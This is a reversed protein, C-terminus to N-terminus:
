QVYGHDNFHTDRWSGTIRGNNNIGNAITMLNPDPASFSTITGSADRKFGFTNSSSDQWYGVIVGSDNMAFAYTQSANPVSFDTVNGSSDRFFGHFVNDSGSYDGSVEGSLNILAISPYVTGSVADFNTFNGSADRLFVRTTGTNGDTYYGAIEGTANISTAWTGKGSGTSAQPDDIVTMAGGPQRTFGHYNGGADFYYGTITGSDNISLPDTYIAGSPAFISYAGNPNRLFGSFQYPPILLTSITGVVQGPNNLATVTVDVTHPPAFEIFQGNAQRIFGRQRNAKDIYDGAIIGKLNIAVPYTGQQSGTGADPADFSIFTPTQGVLFTSFALLSLTPLLFKWFRSDDLQHQRRTM